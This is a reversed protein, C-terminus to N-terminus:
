ALSLEGRFGNLFQQSNMAPKGEIQIDQVARSLRDSGTLWIKGDKKSIGPESDSSTSNELSLIKLSKEGKNTRIRVFAGPSPYFARIMRDMVELTMSAPKLKFDNKKLKGCHTAAGHDQPEGKPIAQDGLILPTLLEIADTILRQSLSGHNEDPSLSLAKKSIMPGADLAQVIHMITMGSETEGNLIATQIPSAGRLKPLLSAHGNIIAPCRDLFSKPLIQGFSVVIFLEANLNLIPDQHTKEKLNHPQILPIHNTKAFEALPGAKILQKRGQPRDPQTVVGMPPVAQTLGRLVELSFADSGFYVYPKM